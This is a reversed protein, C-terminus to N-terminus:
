HITKANEPIKFNFYFDNVANGVKIDSYRLRRIISDNKDSYSIETILKPLNFSNGLYYDDYYIKKSINGALTYYCAYVPLFNEFVFEIKRIAKMGEPAAWETITYGEEYRTNALVFGECSLGLDETKNNIFYYLLENDSSFLSNQRINVENKEPFYIKMEGTKNTIKISEIPHRSHSVFIGNDKDFYYDSEYSTKKGENLVQALMHVSVRGASQSFSAQGFCMLFVIYTVFLRMKSIKESM